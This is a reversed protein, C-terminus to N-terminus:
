EGKKKSINLILPSNKFFTLEIPEKKIIMKIKFTSNEKNNKIKICKGIIEKIKIKKVSLNIYKINLIDGKKM